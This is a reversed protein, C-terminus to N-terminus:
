SIKNHKNDQDSAILSLCFNCNIFTKTLTNYIFPVIKKVAPKTIVTYQLLKNNEKAWVVLVTEASMFCVEPPVKSTLNSDVGL